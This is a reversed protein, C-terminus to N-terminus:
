CIMCLDNCYGRRLLHLRVLCCVKTLAPAAYSDFAFTDLSPMERVGSQLTGVGPAQQSILIWAVNASSCTLLSAVLAVPLQDVADIVVCALPGSQPVLGATHIVCCGTLVRGDLSELNRCASAIDSMM